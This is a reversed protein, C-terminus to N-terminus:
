NLVVGTIIVYNTINVYPLNCSLFPLFSYCSCFLLYLVTCLLCRFFIALFTSGAPWMETVGQNGKRYVGFVSPAQPKGYWGFPIFAMRWSHLRQCGLISRIQQSSVLHSGVAVVHQAVQTRSCWGSKRAWFDSTWSVMSAAPYRQMKRGFNWQLGFKM